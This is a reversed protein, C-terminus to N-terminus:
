RAPDPRPGSAPASASGSPSARPRLVREAGCRDRLHLIPFAISQTETVIRFLPAGNEVTRSADPGFVPIPTEVTETRMEREISTLVWGTPIGAARGIEEGIAATVQTPAGSSERLDEVAVQIRQAGPASGTGVADPPDVFTLPELRYRVPVSATVTEGLVSRRVEVGEVRDLQATVLAYSVRTGPCPDPDVYRQTQGLLNGSADAELKSPPSQHVPKPAEHEMWRVVVSRLISGAPNGPNHAWTLLVGEDTVSATLGLPPLLVNGPTRIAARLTTAQDIEHKSFFRVPAQTTAPPPALFATELRSAEHPPAQTRAVDRGPPSGGPADLPGGAGSGTFESLDVSARMTEAEALTGHADRMRRALLAPVIAAAGFVTLAVLRGPWGARLTM